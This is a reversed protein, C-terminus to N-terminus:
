CPRADAPPASGLSDKLAGAVTRAIGFENIIRGVILGGGHVHFTTANANPALHVSAFAVGGHSVTLKDRSGGSHPTVKYGSGLQQRLAEAAEQPTITRPITATPM